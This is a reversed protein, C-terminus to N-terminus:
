LQINPMSYCDFVGLLYEWRKINDPTNIFEHLKIINKTRFDAQLIYLDVFPKFEFFQQFQNFIINKM